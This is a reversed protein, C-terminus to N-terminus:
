GVNPRITPSRDDETARLYEKTGDQRLVLKAYLRHRPPHGAARATRAIPFVSACSSCTAKAGRVAGQHQVYFSVGCSPCAPWMARIQSPFVERCNPCVVHVEPHRRVYAHRAFVHTSFLDVTRSCEPCPLTKVWFWYLVDCAHGSSDVSQYLERIERGVTSELQGYLEALRPRSLRSLAVSVSRYAVPNIDRGVASCGLKVAEGVTTGSGMFPDFVVIGRFDCRRYFDEMVDSESSVISGIIAARFVSGLRQAWWKHTHYVPRWVEKRWSEVDAIRSVLEFPFGDEIARTTSHGPLSDKM